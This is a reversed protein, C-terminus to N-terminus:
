QPPAAPSTNGQPANRVLWRIKTEGANANRKSTSPLTHVSAVETGLDEVKLGHGTFIDKTYDVLVRGDAFEIRLKHFRLFPSIDPTRLEGSPPITFTYYAPTAAFPTGTADKVITFEGRYDNPLIIRIPRDLNRDCALSLLLLIPLLRAIM